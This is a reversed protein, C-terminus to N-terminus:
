IASNLMHIVPYRNKYVQLFLISKPPFYIMIFEIGNLHEINFVLKFTIFAVPREIFNSKFKRIRPFLVNKILCDYSLYALHINPMSHKRFEEQHNIAM